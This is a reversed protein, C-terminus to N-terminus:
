KNNLKKLENLIEIQINKTDDETNNLKDLVETEKELYNPSLIDNMYINIFNYITFVIILIFFVKIFESILLGIHIDVDYINLTFKKFDDMKFTTEIFPMILEDSILKTSNSLSLGIVTGVALGIINFKVLFSKFSKVEQEALDQVLNM